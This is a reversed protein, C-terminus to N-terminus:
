HFSELVAERQCTIGREKLPVKRLVSRKLGDLWSVRCQVISEVYREFRGM